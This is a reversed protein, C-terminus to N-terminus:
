CRRVRPVIKFCNRESGHITWQIIKTMLHIHLQDLRNSLDQNDEKSANKLDIKQQLGKASVDYNNANGTSLPGNFFCCLGMFFPVVIM